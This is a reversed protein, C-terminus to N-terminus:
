EKLRAEITDYATFVRDIDELNPQREIYGIALSTLPFQERYPVANKPTGLGILDLSQAQAVDKVVSYRKLNSNMQVPSVDECFLFGVRFGFGDKPDDETAKIAFSGDILERYKYPKEFLYDFIKAVWEPIQEKQPEM